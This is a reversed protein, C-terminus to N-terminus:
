SSLCENRPPSNEGFSPPVATVALLKRGCFQPATASGSGAVRELTVVGEITLRWPLGHRVAANGTAVIQGL